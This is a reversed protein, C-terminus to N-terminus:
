SQYDSSTKKQEYIDLNKQRNIFPNITIKLKLHEMM